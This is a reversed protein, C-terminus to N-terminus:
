GEDSHSSESFSTYGSVNATYQPIHSHPHSFPPTRPHPAHPHSIPPTHPHPPPPILPGAPQPQLVSVPPSHPLSTTPTHPHSASDVDASNTPPPKPLASPNVFGASTLFECFKQAALGQAEKKNKAEGCGIFDYGTVRVQILLVYKWCSHTFLWVYM